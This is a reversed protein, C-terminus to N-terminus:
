HASDALPPPAPDPLPYALRRPSPAIILSDQEARLIRALLDHVAASRVPGVPLLARADAAASDGWVAALSDLLTNGREPDALAVARARELQVFRTIYRTEDPSLDDITLPQPDDHCATSGVLVFAIQAIWAIRAFGAFGAFRALYRNM